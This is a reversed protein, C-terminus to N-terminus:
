HSLFNSSIIYLRVKQLFIFEGGLRNYPNADWHFVHPVPVKSRDRLYAM